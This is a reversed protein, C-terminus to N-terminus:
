LRSGVTVLTHSSAPDVLSFVVLASPCLLYTHVTHLIDLVGGRGRQRDLSAHDDVAVATSVRKLIAAFLTAHMMPLSIEVVVRCRSTFMGAARQLRLTLATQRRLAHPWSPQLPWSPAIWTWTPHLVPVSVVSMPYLCEGPCCKRAIVTCRSSRTVPCICRGCKVAVRTMRRSGSTTTTTPAFKRNSSIIWDNLICVCRVDEQYQFCNITYKGTMPKVNDWLSDHAGDLIFSGRGRPMVIEVMIGPFLHACSIHADPSVCVARGAQEDLLCGCVGVHVRMSPVRSWSVHVVILRLSGVM